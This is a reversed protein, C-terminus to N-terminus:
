SFGFSDCLQLEKVIRWFFCVFIEHFRQVDCIVSAYRFILVDCDHPIGIDVIQRGRLLHVSVWNECSVIQMLGVCLLRCPNQVPNRQQKVVNDSTLQDIRLVNRVGEQRRIVQSMINKLFIHNCHFLFKPKFDCMGSLVVIDTLETMVQSSCIPILIEWGIWYILFMIDGGSDKTFDQVFICWSFCCEDSLRGVKFCLIFRPKIFSAPCCQILFLSRLSTVSSIGICFSQFAM